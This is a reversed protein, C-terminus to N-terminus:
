LLQLPWFRTIWENRMGNCSLHSWRRWNGVLRVLASATQGNPIGGRLRVMQQQASATQGNDKAVFVGTLIKHSSSGQRWEDNGNRRVDYSTRRLLYIKAMSNCGFLSKYLLIDYLQLLFRQSFTGLPRGPISLLSEPWFQHSNTSWLESNAILYQSFIEIALKQHLHNRFQPARRRENQASRASAEKKIERTHLSGWGEDCSPASM